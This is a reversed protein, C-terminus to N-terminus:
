VNLGNEKPDFILPFFKGGMKEGKSIVPVGKLLVEDTDSVTGDAFVNLVFAKRSRDSHNAYSGHVLLPHHFAAYGAQLPISVPKFFEKQKENLMSMLGNMEGTLIPKKLLGWRHSGPVYQLCGNEETADDLGCWCTLHQMEITRTWYSYDQHWAVVGGHHAPKCFLQDHWFRIARDGLLQSSVKLFAPNWIADHFAAAIRWHGLSHFLVTNPDTSENSHFEHFLDHLPHQLDSVEDLALKLAQIQTDDLIKIGALYGNELFFEIQDRDLRYKEWDEATQPRAFLDTIPGHYDALDKM